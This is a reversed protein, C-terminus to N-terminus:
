SNVTINALTFRARETEDISIDSTGLVPDGIQLATVHHGPVSNTASYLRSLLVDDGIGFEEGEVLQGGAYDLIAQKIDDDGTAPYDATASVTVEVIIDVYTPRTFDIAQTFGQSDLINETTTGFLEIGAPHKLWIAAAVAADDGGEVVVEYSHAPRGDVVAGTDNVYVRAALVGAVQLVQSYLADLINTAGTQTSVRRRARLTGDSEEDSGTILQALANSVGTWGSVPTVIESLEGPGVTIPGKEVAQWLSGAGNAFSNGLDTQLEFEDGAVTRARTGDPLFVTGGSTSITASVVTHGGFKRTIGNFAVIESLAAGAAQSPRFSAYIAAMVQWAEDLPLAFTGLIQADPTDPDLNVSAGFIGRWGDELESQIVAAPKAVFGAPTVGYTM